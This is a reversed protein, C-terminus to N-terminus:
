QLLQIDIFRGYNKALNKDSTVFQTCGGLLACGVQLADEFDNDQAHLYAWDVVGKDLPVVLLGTITERIEEPTIDYKKGFHVALHVSLASITIGASASVLHSAFTFRPRGPLVLDLLVNADIFIATNSNLIM